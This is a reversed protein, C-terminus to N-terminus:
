ANLRAPSAATEFVAAPDDEFRFAAPLFDFVAFPAPPHDMRIDITVVEPARNNVATRHSFITELYDRAAFETHVQAM